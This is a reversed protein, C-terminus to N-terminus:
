GLAAQRQALYKIIQQTMKLTSVMNYTVPSIEFPSACFEHTQPQPAKRTVRPLPACYSSPAHPAASLVSSGTATRVVAPNNGQELPM